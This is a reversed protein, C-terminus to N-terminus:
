CRTSTGRGGTPRTPPALRADQLRLRVLPTVFELRRPTALEFSHSSSVDQPCGPSGRFVCLSMSVYVSLRPSPCGGVQMRSRQKSRPGECGHWLNGRLSPRQVKRTLSPLFPLRPLPWACRIAPAKALSYVIAVQRLAAMADLLQRIILQARHARHAGQLISWKLIVPLGSAVGSHGSLSCPRHTAPPTACPWPATPAPICPPSFTLLHLTPALAPRTPASETMKALTQQLKAMDQPHRARKPAAVLLSQAVAPLRVLPPGPLVPCSCPVLFLRPAALNTEMRSSAVCVCVCAVVM